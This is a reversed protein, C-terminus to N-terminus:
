AAAGAADDALTALASEPGGAAALSIARTLWAYDVGRIKAENPSRCSSRFDDVVALDQSEVVDFMGSGPTPTFFSPSLHDPAIRWVMRVTDLAEPKTESPAGFMINAWVKVGYRRCIEAARLNQEVTTGKEFLDLIRQSGSEFGIMAWALGAEAMRRVVHEFRCIMDARMQCIFPQDLGAAQYRDCFELMWKPNLFFLDDHAMWSRFGYRERLHLLEDVVNQASRIVIIAEPREEKIVRMARVADPYHLSWSTIGWVPTDITRVLSRFHEWDRLARLDILGVEHGAAKAAAGVSALGHDIFNADVSTGKNFSDFGPLAIGPFVLTVRMPSRREVLDSSSRSCPARRPTGPSRPPSAATSPTGSTTASRPASSPM